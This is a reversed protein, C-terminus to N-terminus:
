SGTSGYRKRRIVNVMIAVMALIFLPVAINLLQWFLRNGKIRGTDLLRLKVERSRLETIGTDDVLWNMVNIIFDKNGFTQRSYRDYGLPLPDPVGGSWSVENRIIDGDAVVVMRSYRGREVLPGGNYERRRGAFLSPFNGELKVAVPIFSRNFLEEPPPNRYESLAIIRPPTVTRSYPSSALLFEKIVAKDAGVTDLSNVFEGKVKNINRTVPSEASPYLLPYYIWPVPLYNQQSETITNRVPIILCDMDQIIEPNIRVGYKFLQDEINLPRYLAMSGGTTLSDRNVYVEDQLWLIRGGNMLYQDIVLKDEEDFSQEAGAIIIAAYRDLAGQVGGIAGRDITFYKAMELTIDAVEAEDYEGHGEIFAVRYITDATVTAVARILEYELGEVSSILNEGSSRGPDNRLFNVPISVTNYNVIFGPFLLREINGGERDRDMISVPDIGRNILEVRRREREGEDEPASPNIFTYGIKKGSAVRFEELMDRVNRRLRKFEVPMDGDLYVQILIDDELASLIEKSPESLTFRKDSTLDIRFSFLSAVLAILLAAGVILLYEGIDRGRSKERKEKRSLKM